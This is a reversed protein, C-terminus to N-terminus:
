INKHRYINKNNTCFEKGHYRNRVQSFFAGSYKKRVEWEFSINELTNIHKEFWELLNKSSDQNLFQGFMKLKTQYNDHLTTLINKLFEIKTEYKSNQQFSQIRQLEIRKEKQINKKKQLIKFLDIFTEREKIGYVLMLERSIESLKTEKGAFRIWSKFQKGPEYAELIFDALAFIREALSRM